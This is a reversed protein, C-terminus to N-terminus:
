YASEAQVLLFQSGKMHMRSMDLKQHITEGSLLGVAFAFGLVGDHKLFRVWSGFSRPSKTTYAAFTSPITSAPLGACPGLDNSWYNVTYSQLRRLGVASVPEGKQHM